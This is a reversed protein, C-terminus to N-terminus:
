ALGRLRRAAHAGEEDRQPELSRDCGAKSTADIPAVECAELATATQGRRLGAAAEHRDAGRQLPEHAICVVAHLDKAAGRPDVSIPEVHVRARLM